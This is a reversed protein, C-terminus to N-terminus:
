YYEKLKLGWIVNRSKGTVPDHKNETKYNEDSLITGLSKSTISRRGNDKLYKKFCESFEKFPVYYDRNFECYRNLFIGLPNSIEDYNKKRGEITGERDFERKKLLDKLVNVSKRTLAFYEREPIDDLIDKTEPFENPFNVMLWRRYFGKSKDETRPLRNTSIIIKAYNYDDFLDKFKLEFNILDGGSLRKILSTQRINSKNIEGMVCALKKFLKFREFRSSILTELETTVVNNNGVFRTLLDLFKSKGNSGEGILCFIRNLPYDPLICYAIIQYLLRVNEEGVWEKFIRDMVPTKDDEGLTWPIPNTTFYKPTAEFEDMTELDLITDKFQVFTKEMELPKNVRAFRKLSELLISKIRPNLSIYEKEPFIKDFQIFLEVEDVILWQKERKSWSWWKKGEDYYLPQKKIFEKAMKHSKLIKKEADSVM